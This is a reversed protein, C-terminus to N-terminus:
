VMGEIFDILFETLDIKEELMKKRSSEIITKRGEVIYNVATKLVCEDYAEHVEILGYEEQEKLVGMTGKPLGSIQIAPTGLIACESTMTGSEGILLSAFALAHHMREPRIRIRYKEIQAPIKGEASIFVKSIKSLSNVLDVKEELSMGRINNDHSANWSVFRVICYSENEKINLDNYISKDPVFYKPHLYALEHYSQYRIQKRGLDVQLAAPTLVSKTFPLYLRIQEMNGTDELSVHVKRLLFAAHAAYFSGHSMFIDPKFKLAVLLMQLDFKLLGWIKGSKTNFHKGFSVYQHDSAKLLEIEFEKQRCTFLISHGKQKMEDAFPRFLHVHGPHGIDILIRM